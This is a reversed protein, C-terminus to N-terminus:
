LERLGMLRRAENTTMIGRQIEENLIQLRAVLKPDLEVAASENPTLVPVAVAEAVKERKPKPYPTGCYPCRREAPERVAGCNPCNTM